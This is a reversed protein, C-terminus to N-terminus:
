VMIVDSTCFVTINISINIVNILPSSKVVETLSRPCEIGIIHVHHTLRDLLAGMMSQDDAFIQPWDAFPLNTTLILSVQEYCQSFFGFLHETGHHHVFTSL